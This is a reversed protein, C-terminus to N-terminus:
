KVILGPKKPQQIKMAEITNLQMVAHFMISAFVADKQMAAIIIRAAQVHDKVDHAVQGSFTKEGEKATYEIIAFQVGAAKFSTILDQLAQEPAKPKPQKKDKNM